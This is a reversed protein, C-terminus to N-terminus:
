GAARQLAETFTQMNPYRASPSQRMGRRLANSVAEPVDSHPPVPQILYALVQNRISVIDNGAFPLARHLIEWCTVAFSFQDSRSDAALGQHQEPSMYHPTGVIKGELEVRVTAGGACGCQHGQDDLDALSRAVGFDSVVVRGSRAILVNDPKIDRHVVKARHAAELAVGVEILGRLRERWDSVSGAWERLTTGDILEMALYVCGGHEGVDHVTLIGPNSLTALTRAERMLLSCLTGCADGEQVPRVLKLAVARGLRQDRARYVEAMGGAGLLAEVVYRDLVDGPRLRGAALQNSSSAGQDGLAVTDDTAFDSAM